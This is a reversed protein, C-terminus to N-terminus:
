AFLDLTAGVAPQAQPAPQTQEGLEDKSPLLYVAFQYLASEVRPRAWDQFDLAAMVGLKGVLHADLEGAELVPRPIGADQWRRLEHWMASVATRDTCDVVRTEWLWVNSSGSNVPARLGGHKKYSTTAYGVWPSSPPDGLVAARVAQRSMLEFREATCRWSSMREPCYRRSKGDRLEGATFANWAAVSIRDSDPRELADWDTFSSTLLHRRAITPLEMGIMCCVGHAPEEPLPEPSYPGGRGFAEALLQLSHM